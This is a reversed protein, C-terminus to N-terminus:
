HINDKRIGSYVFRSSTLRSYVQHILILTDVEAALDDFEDLELNIDENGEEYKLQLIKNLIEMKDILIQARLPLQSHYTTM